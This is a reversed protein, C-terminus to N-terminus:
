YVFIFDENKLDTLDDFAKDGVRNTPVAGQLAADEQGNYEPDQMSRDVITASKGHKIRTQSHKRNLFKLYLTTIFVLVILVIFLALNSRLGRRYGPAEETTYLHPGLINGASQGIFLIATTTKKKTEGATNQSSWSYILPTIGPYVSIFYYGILLPARNGVTHSITLLMVCGAIAPLCMIALAPGKKKTWTAFAAGGLTAIIQVAGFPINLLITKFSDFGFSKVILPGFTTVGGSPVSVSFILSFWLWTKVDSVSEMVHDWRWETSVVGMQNARLREIAILKDKKNLFKAEVPSDPMFIFVVVSFVVTLLGCTLFIIQYSYLTESEIQGLAYALLSGVMNTVGNM